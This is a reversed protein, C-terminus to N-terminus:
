KEELRQELEFVHKELQCIKDCLYDIKRDQDTQSWKFINNIYAFVIAVSNIFLVAYVEKSM